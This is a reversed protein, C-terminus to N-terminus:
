KSLRGLNTRHKALPQGVGDHLFAIIRIPLDSARHEVHKVATALNPTRDTLFRSLTNDPVIILGVDIIGKVLDERLHMVDVALMDSRGSVQVEVGITAGRQNQKKWDIGGVTLKKWDRLAAFEADIQQRLGRTGNAHKREEVVLEFSTLVGCAEAVISGLRLRRIKEAVGNYDRTDSIQPV